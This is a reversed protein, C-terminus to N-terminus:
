RTGTAIRFAMLPTFAGLFTVILRRARNYSQRVIRSSLMRAYTGHITGSITAGGSGFLLHVRLPARAPVDAIAVRPPNLALWALYAAGKGLLLAVASGHSMAGGTQVAYAAGSATRYPWLADLMM